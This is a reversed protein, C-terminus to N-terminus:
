KWHSEYGTHYIKMSIYVHLTVHAHCEQHKGTQVRRQICIFISITKM